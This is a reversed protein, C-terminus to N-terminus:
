RRYSSAPRAMRSARNFSPEDDHDDNGNRVPDSKAPFADVSVVEKPDYAVERQGLRLTILNTEANYAARDGDMLRDGTIFSSANWESDSKYTFRLFGGNAFTLRVTFHGSRM